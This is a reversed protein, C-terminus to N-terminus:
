ALCAHVKDPWRSNCIAGDVQEWSAGAASWGASGPAGLGLRDTTASACLLLGDAALSALAIRRGDRM